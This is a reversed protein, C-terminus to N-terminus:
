SGGKAAAERIKGKMEESKHKAIYQKLQKFHKVAQILIKLQIEAKNGRKQVNDFDKINGFDTFEGIFKNTAPFVDKQQQCKEYLNDITMLVQGTETIEKSRLKTKEDREALLMSKKKEIEEM